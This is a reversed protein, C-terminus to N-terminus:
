QRVEWAKRAPHHNLPYHGIVVCGIVARAIQVACWLVVCCMAHHFMAQNAVSVDPMILDNCHCVGSAAAAYTNTTDEAPLSDQGHAHKVALPLPM